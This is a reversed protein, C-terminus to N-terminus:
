NGGGDSDWRFDMFDTGREWLMYLYNNDNTLKIFDVAVMYDYNVKCANSIETTQWSDTDTNYYYTTGNASFELATGAFDAEDVLTDVNDWDSFDGDVVITKAGAVFFSLSFIMVATAASLALRFFNRGQRTCKTNKM